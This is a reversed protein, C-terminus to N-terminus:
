SKDKPKTPETKASNFDGDPADKVKTRSIVKKLGMLNGILVSAGSIFGSIRIIPQTVNESVFEVTTQATKVTQQTNELIPKIETQLLGILRAIQLVLISLSLIILIGELGLFIIVLDRILRIVAGSQEVNTFVALGIALLFLLVILGILGGAAILVVRQLGKGSSKNAAATQAANEASSATAATNPSAKSQEDAM